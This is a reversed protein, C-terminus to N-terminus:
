YLYSGKPEEEMGPQEGAELSAMSPGEIDALSAGAANNITLTKTLGDVTSGPCHCFGFMFAKATFTVTVNGTGTGTLVLGVTTSDRKIAKATMGSPATVTVGPVEQGITGQLTKSGDGGGITVTVEDYSGNEQQTFSNASYKLACNEDAPGPIRDIRINTNTCSDYLAQFPMSLTIPGEGDVPNDGGSYKIRPLTLIYSQKVGNGITLVISSEEEAVFKRLLDMNEFFASVTGTVNIRGPVIAMASDSGIVFAPDLANAINLEVSTITAIQRGGEWLEGSYGDFPAATLSVDPEEDLSVQDFNVDKGVFSLTGTVMANTQITLSLTDVECGTFTQYQQVDRFERELTFSTMKTGAVLYTRGGGNEKDEQWESRVAAALFPDFEGFSFEIAVDGSARRNGHRLDTIQADSRLEQSQFSDKSLILSCSTHRLNKMEPNKPTVGFETEQVYRLGHFGGSAFAM